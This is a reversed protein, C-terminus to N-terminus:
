YEHRYLITTYNADVESCTESFYAIIYIDDTLAHAKKYRAIIRGEGAALEDNNAQTDEQPIEGYNGAFFQILCHQIYDKTPEDTDAAVANTQFLPNKMIDIPKM